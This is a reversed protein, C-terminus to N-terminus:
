WVGRRCLRELETEGRGGSSDSSHSPASPRGRLSREGFSRRVEMESSGSHSRAASSSICSSSPARVGREIGVIGEIKCVGAEGVAGGTTVSASTSSCCIGGVIRGRPIHYTIACVHYM